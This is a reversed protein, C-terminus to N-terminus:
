GSSAYPNYYFLRIACAKNTNTYIFQQIISDTDPGYNIVDSFKDWSM